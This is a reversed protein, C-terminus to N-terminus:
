PLTTQTCYERTPLSIVLRNKQYEVLSQKNSIICDTCFNLMVLINNRITPAYKHLMAMVEYGTTWVLKSCLVLKAHLHGCFYFNSYHFHLKDLSYYCCTFLIYTTLSHLIHINLVLWRPQLSFLVTLRMSPSYTFISNINAKIEIPKWWSRIKMYEM